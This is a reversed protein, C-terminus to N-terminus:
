RALRTLRIASIRFDASVPFEKGMGTLELRQAPCGQGPVVFEGAVDSKAAKGGLTLELVRTGAPLCTITWRIDSEEGLQGALNMELRYRGSPLLMLQRALVLDDRGFYLVRLGGDSPEAVGAANSALMWNFPKSASSQAFDPNFLGRSSGQPIGSLEAWVSHAREFAGQEVLKSLLKEQWAAPSKAARRPSALALILDVKSPDEALKSLLAPELEPHVLLIRKLQPIADATSAYAALAPVVQRIAGPVLRGLVLMESLGPLVRGTRLYLDALLFRAAASRPNRERAQVLLREAISYENGRQAIASYVLFPEPALPELKALQELRQLTQPLPERGRGAVEGVDGMAVSRVVDPHSPWVAAAIAPRDEAFAAVAATRAAYAAAVLVFGAAAIPRLVM